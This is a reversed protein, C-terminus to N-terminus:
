VQWLAHEFDQEKLAIEIPVKQFLLTINGMKSPDIAVISNIKRRDVNQRGPYWGDYYYSLRWEIDDEPPTLFGSNRFVGYPTTLIAILPAVPRNEIQEVFEEPDKIWVDISNYDELLLKEEGYTSYKLSSLFFQPTSKPIYLRNIKDSKDYHLDVISLGLRSEVIEHRTHKGTMNYLRKAMSGFAGDVDYKGELIGEFDAGEKTSFRDPYSMLKSELHYQAIALQLSVPENLRFEVPM